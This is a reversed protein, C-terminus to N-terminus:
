GAKPHSINFRIAYDDKIARVVKKPTRAQSHDDTVRM